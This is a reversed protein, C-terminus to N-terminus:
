YSCGWRVRVKGVGSPPGGAHGEAEGWMRAARVQHKLQEEGAENPGPTDLLTVRGFEPGYGDLAQLPAQIQLVEDDSLQHERSRVDGNLETLRARVAAAGRFTRGGASPDRLTPEAAAPDHTIRCIRATEPVNNVPLCEAGLLANLLTSKGAAPPPHPTRGLASHTHAGLYRLRSGALLFSFFCLCCLPLVTLM